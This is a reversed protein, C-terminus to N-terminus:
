TAGTRNPRLHEDVERRVNGQCYLLPLTTHHAADGGHKQQSTTVRLM